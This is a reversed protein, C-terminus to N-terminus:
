SWFNTGRLHSLRSPKPEAETDSKPPAQEISDLMAKYAAIDGNWREGNVTTPIETARATPKEKLDKRSALSSMLAVFDKLNQKM